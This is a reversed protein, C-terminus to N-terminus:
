KGEFFDDTIQMRGYEAGHHKGFLEAARGEPAERDGHQHVGVHGGHVDGIATRRVLARAVHGVDDGAPLDRGHCHGLGVGARVHLCNAGGRPAVAVAVHDVARLHEDGVADM